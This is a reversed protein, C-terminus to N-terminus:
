WIARKASISPARRAKVPSANKAPLLGVLHAVIEDVAILHLAAVMQEGDPIDEIEFRVEDGGAM